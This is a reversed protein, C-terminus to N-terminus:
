EAVQTQAPIAPADHWKYAVIARQERIFVENDCVAVHAWSADKSVKYEDVVTLKEPSMELLFLEGEQDLALVRNGNVAMSMYKGFSESSRWAEKGTDLNYCAIRQNRLHWYVHNDCV